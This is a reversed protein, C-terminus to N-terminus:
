ATVEERLAREGIPIRGALAAAHVGRAHMWTTLHQANLAIQERLQPTTRKTAGVAGAHVPHIVAGPVYAVRLGRLWADYTFAVDEGHVGPWVPFRLGAGLARASLWLCSTTVHALYAPIMARSTARPVLLGATSYVFGANAVTRDENLMTVGILDARDCFADLHALSDPTFTADDDVFIANGGRRAAEDLLANAALAWGPRSDTLLTHPPLHELGGPARPEKCAVLINLTTM